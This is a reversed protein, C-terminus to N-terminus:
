ALPAGVFTAPLQDVFLRNMLKREEIDARQIVEPAAEFMGYSKCALWVILMHYAEPMGPTDTDGALDRAGTWYSGTVVYAQDPVPGLKLRKKSDITCAQPAGRQDRAAGKEYLDRFTETDLYPLDYEGAYGLAVPFVRVSDRKWNGNPTPIALAAETPSAPLTFEELMWDWDGMRTQIDRWAENVWDKFRLDDLVLGGQVTRLDASASGCERRARNVLQLFNV